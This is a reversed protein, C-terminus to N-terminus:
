PWMALRMLLWPMIQCTSTRSGTYGHCLLIAARKEGPGLRDLIYVDGKLRFRESYFEVARKM